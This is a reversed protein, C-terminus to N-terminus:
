SLSLRPQRASLWANGDPRLVASTRRAEPRQSHAVDGPVRSSRPFPAEQNRELVSARPGASCFGTKMAQCTLGGGVTSSDGRNGNSPKMGTSVGSCGVDTQSRTVPWRRAFYQVAQDSRGRSCNASVIRMGPLRLAAGGMCFSNGDLLESRRGAWSCTRSRVRDPPHRCM